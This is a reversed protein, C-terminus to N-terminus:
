VSSYVAVCQKVSGCRAGYQEVSGCVAEYQEVSSYLAICWVAGCQVITYCPSQNRALSVPQKKSTM